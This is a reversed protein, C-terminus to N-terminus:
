NATTSVRRRWAIAGAAAAMLLLVMTSPEPVTSLFDGAHYIDAVVNGSIDNTLVLVQDNYPNYSVSAYFSDGVDFTGSSGDPRFVTLGENGGSFLYDREDFFMGAASHNDYNEPNLAVGQSWTLPNGSDCATEVQSRSFQKVLGREDGYGVAAYLNGQSDTAISASAGPIENIVVQETGDNIDFVSVWSLPNTMYNEWGYNVYFKSEAGAISSGSPVPVFDYHYDIDGVPNSVTTGDVPMVFLRGAHYEQGMYPGWGGAGNGILIQSGDATFNIPGADAMNASTGGSDTPVNAVDGIKTFTDVNVGDQRWVGTGEWLYLLGEPSYRAGLYFSNSSLAPLNEFRMIRDPVPYTQQAISIGPAWIWSMLVLCVTGIMKTHSRM